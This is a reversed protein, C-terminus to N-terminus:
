IFVVQKLCKFKDFVFRYRKLTSWHWHDLCQILQYTVFSLVFSLFFLFVILFTCFFYFFIFFIFFCGLGFFSRFLFNCPVNYDNCSDQVLFSWHLDICIIVVLYTHTHTHTSSPLHRLTTLNCRPSWGVNEQCLLSQFWLEFSINLSLLWPNLSLLRLNWLFLSFHLQLLKELIHCGNQLHGRTYHAYIICLDAM